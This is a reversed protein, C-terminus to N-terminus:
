RAAPKLSRCSILMGTECAYLGEGGGYGMFGGTESGNSIVSVLTKGIIEHPAPKENFSSPILEAKQRETFIVSYYTSM